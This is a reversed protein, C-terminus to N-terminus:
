IVVQTINRWEIHNNQEDYSNKTRSVLNGHSDFKSEEIRRGQENYKVHWKHQLILDDLHTNSKSTM